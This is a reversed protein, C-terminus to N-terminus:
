IISVVNQEALQLIVALAAAFEAEKIKLGDGIANVGELVDSVATARKM